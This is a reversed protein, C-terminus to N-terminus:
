LGVTGREGSGGAAAQPKATLEVLVSCAEKASEALRVELRAGHTFAQVVRVEAEPGDGAEARVMPLHSLPPCFGVHLVAHRQGAAFEARLTAVIGEVGDEDRVRRVEQLM